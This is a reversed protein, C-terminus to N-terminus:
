ETEPRNHTRHHGCISGFRPERRVRLQVQAPKPDLGTVKQIWGPRPVHVLRRRTPTCASRREVGLQRPIDPQQLDAAHEVREPVPDDYREEDDVQVVHAPEAEAGGPEDHGRRRGRQEDGAHRRTGSISWKPGRRVSPAPEDQLRDAEPQQREHSLGPLGERQHDHLARARGAEPRALRRQERAERGGGASVRRVRLLAQRHVEPDAEAPDHAAQDRVDGGRARERDQEQEVRDGEERVDDHQEEDVVGPHLSALGGRGGRVAGDEAM